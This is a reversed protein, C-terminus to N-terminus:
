FSAQKGKQPTFLNKFFVVGGLDAFRTRSVPACVGRVGPSSRGSACRSSEGNTFFVRLGLVAAAHLAGILPILSLTAAVLSARDSSSFFVRSM